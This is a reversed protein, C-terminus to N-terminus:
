SVCPAVEQRGTRVEGSLVSVAAAEHRGLDQDGFAGDKVVAIYKM